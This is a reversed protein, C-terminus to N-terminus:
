SSCRVRVKRMLSPVSTPSTDSVAGIASGLSRFGPFFSLITRRSTDFRQKCQQNNIQKNDILTEEEAGGIASANDKYM